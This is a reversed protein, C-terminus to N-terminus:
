NYKRVSLRASCFWATLMGPAMILRMQSATGMSLLSRSLGTASEMESIVAGYNIRTIYSVMYTLAFLVFLSVITYKLIKKSM